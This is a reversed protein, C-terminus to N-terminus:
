EGVKDSFRPRFFGDIKGTERNLHREIGVIDHIFNFDDAALLAHLRLPNGNCHTAVIDMEIDLLKRHSGLEIARRAIATAIRFEEQSCEFSVTM